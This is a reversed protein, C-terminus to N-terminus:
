PFLPVIREDLCLLHRQMTPFMTWLQKYAKVIYDDTLEKVPRNVMKWLSFLMLTFEYKPTGEEANPPIYTKFIINGAPTRRAAFLSSKLMVLGPTNGDADAAAKFHGDPLPHGSRFYIGCEHLDFVALDCIQNVDIDALIHEGDLTYYRERLRQIVHPILEVYYPHPTNMGRLYFYSRTGRDNEVEAYCISWWRTSGPQCYVAVNWTNSHKTLFKDRVFQPQADKYGIRGHPLQKLLTASIRKAHHKVSPWDAMLERLKDEDTYAPVIMTVAM